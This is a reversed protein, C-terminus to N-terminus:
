ITTEIGCYDFQKTIRTFMNWESAKQLLYNFNRIFEANHDVTVSGVHALEHLLVGFLVNDNYLNDHSDRSRVCLTISEGKNITYSTLEKDIKGENLTDPNYRQVLRSIMPSQSDDGKQQLLALFEKVKANLRALTNATEKSKKTNRVTYYNGDDALVKIRDDLFSVNVYYLLFFPILILFLILIHKFM